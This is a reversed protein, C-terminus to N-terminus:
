PKMTWTTTVNTATTDTNTFYVQALPIPKVPAHAVWEGRLVKWAAM